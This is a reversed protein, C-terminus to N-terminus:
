QKVTFISPHHSRFAGTWHCESDDYGIVDRSLQGVGGRGGGGKDSTRSGGSGVVNVRVIM